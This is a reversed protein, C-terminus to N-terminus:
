VSSDGTRVALPIVKRESHGFRLWKKYAAKLILRAHREGCDHSDIWALVADTVTGSTLGEMHRLLADTAGDDLLATAAVAVPPPTPEPDNM